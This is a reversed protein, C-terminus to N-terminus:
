RWTASPLNQKVIIRIKRKHSDGSHKAEKPTAGCGTSKLPKVPGIALWGTTRASTLSSDSLNASMHSNVQRNICRRSQLKVCMRSPQGPGKASKSVSPPLPSKSAPNALHLTAHSAIALASSAACVCM